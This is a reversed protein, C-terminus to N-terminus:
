FIIYNRLSNYEESINRYARSIIYFFHSPTAVRAFFSIVIFILLKIGGYHIPPLSRYDPAKKAPAPTKKKYSSKAKVLVDKYAMKPNKARVKKVHEMWPNSM